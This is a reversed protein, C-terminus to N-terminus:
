RCFIGCEQMGGVLMLAESAVGAVFNGGLPRRFSFEGVNRIKWVVISTYTTMALLKEGALSKDGGARRNARDTVHARRRTFLAPKSEALGVTRILGRFCFVFTLERDLKRM